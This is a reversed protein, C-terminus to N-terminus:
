KKSNLLEIAADTLKEKPVIMAAFIANKLIHNLGQSEKLADGSFAFPLRIYPNRSSAAYAQGDFETTFLIVEDDKIEKSLLDIFEQKTTLQTAM